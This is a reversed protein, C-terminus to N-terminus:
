QVKYRFQIYFRQTTTSPAVFELFATDTTPSAYIAAAIGTITTASGVCENGATFNSAIPLSIRLQTQGSATPTVDVIGEVLVFDGDIWYRTAVQATASAVNVNNTLTATYTVGGPIIVNSSTAAELFKGSTGTQITSGSVEINSANTGVRLGYVHQTGKVVNNTIFIYESSDTVSIASGGDTGASNSTNATHVVNDSVTGYKAAHTGYSVNENFLRIGSLYTNKVVNGNVTFTHADSVAIGYGASTGVIGDIINGSITFNYALGSRGMAWIGCNKCSFVANQVIQFNYVPTGATGGSNTGTVLIAWLGISNGIIRNGRIVFDHSGDWQDIIGDHVAGGVYTSVIEIHNDLIQYYSCQTFATAAGPTIFKCREIVVNSCAKGWIARMGGLFGTMDGADMILDSITVDTVTELHILRHGGNSASYPLSTTYLTTAPGAGCLWTNSSVYLPGTLKYTGGPLYVTAGGAAGAATLAAQIAATDDTAGDGVAGFDKVSVVTDALTSVQRAKSLTPM